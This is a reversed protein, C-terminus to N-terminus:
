NHVQTRNRALQALWNWTGVAAYRAAVEAASGLWEARPEVKGQLRALTALWGSDGEPGPLLEQEEAFMFADEQTMQTVAGVIVGRYSVVVGWCFPRPIALDLVVHVGYDRPLWKQKIYTLSPM